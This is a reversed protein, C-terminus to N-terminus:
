DSLKRVANLFTQHLRLISITYFNFMLVQTKPLVKRKPLFKSNEVRGKASIFKPLWSEGISFEAGTSMVKKFFYSFVLINGHAM